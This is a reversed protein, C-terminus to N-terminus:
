FRELEQEGHAWIFVIDDIYRLWILPKKSQTELSKEEVQDIHICTYPPEFKTGMTTSSKQEYWNSDFEFMNNNSVFEAIKMLDEQPIKKINKREFTEKLAKSGAQHPIHSM